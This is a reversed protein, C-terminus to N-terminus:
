RPAVVAVLAAFAADAEEWSAEPASVWWRDIAEDLGRIMALVLPEPLDRRVLGAHLARPWLALLRELRPALRAEVAPPLPHRALEALWPRDRLLRLHARHLAQLAEWRLTTADDPLHPALAAWADEIVTALLDDKDAFYYYAVGKSVGAEALVRNLSAGKPGYAAFHRGAVDLLQRHREASLPAAPSRLM